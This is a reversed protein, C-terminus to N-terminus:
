RRTAVALLSGGFRTTRHAQIRGVERQLYSRLLRGVLSSRVGHQRRLGSRSHAGAPLRLHLRCPLVRSCFIPLPLFGFIATVFDVSFGAGNLLESLSRSTYRRHHGAAVDEDSWLWPLAPVTLYVRGQESLLGHLREMFLCDDPTHEVVDFLGVARLSGAAFGSAELTACVVQRIGRSRANRAGSRGPEVLVVDLGEDQLRRAVFGNGGGVDFIAGPPPFQRLAEVICANRHGFWFSQDEVAFCADNGSAPYSVDASSGCHWIGDEDQVLRNSTLARLDVM